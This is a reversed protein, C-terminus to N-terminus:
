NPYERITERYHSYRSKPILVQPHSSLAITISSELQESGTHRPMYTALICTTRADIRESRKVYFSSSVTRYFFRSLWQFLSIGVAILNSALIGKQVFPCAVFAVDHEWGGRPILRLRLDDLVIMNPITDIDEATRETRHAFPRM